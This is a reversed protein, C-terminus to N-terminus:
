YNEIMQILQEKSYVSLLDGILVRPSINVMSPAIKEIKGKGASELFLAWKNVMDIRMDMYDAHNYSSRVSDKDSHSLETEIVDKNFGYNNLITSALGRFGHGTMEGAYGM